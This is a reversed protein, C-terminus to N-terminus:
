AAKLERLYGIHWADPDNEPKEPHRICFCGKGFSKARYMARDAAQILSEPTEGDRPFAAIGVSAGVAGAPVEAVLEGSLRHLLREMLLDIEQESPSNTLIAVFEDGGFRAIFDSARLCERLCNAVAVLLTDGVEHGFSDNVAKFGDLDIFLVYLSPERRKAAAIAMGLWDVMYRRNPLGTLSDHDATRRLELELRKTESIDQLMTHLGVVEGAANKDPILTVELYRLRGAVPFEDEYTVLEGALAQKIAGATKGYLKEGLFERVTKGVIADRPQRWLREYARNVYQFRQDRDVYAALVPLADMLDRRRREANALQEEAEVLETHDYSVVVAGNPTGDPAKLPRAHTLIYHLNGDPGELLLEEDVPEGKRLVRNLPWNRAPIPEHTQPSLLRWSMKADGLGKGPFGPSERAARNVLTVRGKADCSVIVMDVNDVITTLLEHERRM